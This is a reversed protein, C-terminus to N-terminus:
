NLEIDVFDVNVDDQIEHDKEPGDIEIGEICVIDIPVTDFLLM